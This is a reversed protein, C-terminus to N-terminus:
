YDYEDFVDGWTIHTHVWLGIAVIISIIGLLLHALSSGRKPSVTVRISGQSSDNSETQFRLYYAGKQPFTVKLDYHTREESWAGDVDYGAEKWLEKGFGFLYNKNEDLVEGGIFSWTGYSNLNQKVQIKYISTDKEVQIPGVEGGSSLVNEEITSGRNLNMFLSTLFCLAAFGLLINVIRNYAQKKEPDSVAM